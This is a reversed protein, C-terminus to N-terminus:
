KKIIYMKDWLEQIYDFYDEFTKFDKSDILESYYTYIVVDKHIVNNFENFLKDKNYSIVIQVKLKKQYIDRLGGQRLKLKEKKPNRGGEPYYFIKQKEELARRLAFGYSHRNITIFKIKNYLLCYLSPFIIAAFVLKRSIACSNNTVIPDVLFDGCTTHNVLYVDADNDLRKNTKIKIKSKCFVKIIYKLIDIYDNNFLLARILFIFGLLNITLGFILIDIFGYSNKSTYLPYKRIKKNNINNM